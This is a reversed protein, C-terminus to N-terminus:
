ISSQSSWWSNGQPTGGLQVVQEETMLYAWAEGLSLGTPTYTQIYQRYYLNAAVDRYPQYDELEDLATLVRPDTFYLLYGWVTENGLTMAPYGQPLAYLKGWTLATKVDVVKTACYKPYNAEGPKLTGYVFIRISPATMKPRPVSSFYVRIHYDFYYSWSFTIITCIANVERRDSYLPRKVM